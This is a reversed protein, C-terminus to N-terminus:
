IHILSLTYVGPANVTISQTTQGTSWTNGTAYNSTLTISGNNCIVTSSATIAAVPKQNVILQLNAVKSCTSSKVRVYVTTNGSSHATPNAITNTNGAVADAQNLYYDFTVGATTSINNQASTLNFTATPTDSCISLSANQVVPVIGQTVTVSKQYTCNAPTKVTVTYTGATTM